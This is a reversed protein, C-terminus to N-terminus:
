KMNKRSSRVCLLFFYFTLRFCTSLSFQMSLHFLNDCLSRSDLFCFSFRWIERSDHNFIKNECKQQPLFSCFYAFSSSIEIKPSLTQKEIDEPAIIFMNKMGSKEGISRENMGLLVSDNRYVNQSEHWCLFTVSWQFFVKEKRKCFYNVSIYKTIDSIQTSMSVM